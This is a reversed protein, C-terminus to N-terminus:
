SGQNFAEKVVQSETQDAASQQEELTKEATNDPPPPPVDSPTTKTDPAKPLGNQGQKNALDKMGNDLQEEFKNHMEQLDDVAIAIESGAACDSKKSSAVSATVKRDDDPTDSTRKIVDGPTLQCEQGNSAVTLDSSVIFTHHAPDLAAPVEESPNGGQQQQANSDSGGQQAQAQQAALQAKVE